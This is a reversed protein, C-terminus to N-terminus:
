RKNFLFIDVGGIHSIKKKRFKKLNKINIGGLVGIECRLSRSLFSLRTLGVPKKTKCSSTEFIPSIFVKKVKLNRTRRLDSMNHFSCSYSLSSYVRNSISYKSFHVGDAGTSLAILPDSSVYFKFGKLKCIKGKTVKKDLTRDYQFERPYYDYLKCSILKEKPVESFKMEINQKEERKKSEVWDSYKELFTRIITNKKYYIFGAALGCGLVLAMIYM